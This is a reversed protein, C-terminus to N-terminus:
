TAVVMAAAFEVHVDLEFLRWRDRATPDPSTRGLFSGGTGDLEVDFSDLGASLGLGIAKIYAEKCSWFRHFVRARESEPFTHFQECERPSFYREAIRTGARTPKMWELDVGLERDSIGLLALEGSHSLNFHLNPHDPLSPKGQPGREFRLTEPNTGTRAALLRRVEAHCIVFRRRHRPFLYRQARAREEDDLVALHPEPDGTLELLFLDVGPHPSALATTM